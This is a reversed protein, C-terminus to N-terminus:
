RKPAEQPPTEGLVVGLDRFLGEAASKSILAGNPFLTSQVVANEETPAWVKVFRETRDNARIVAEFKPAEQPVAEARNLVRLKYLSDVWGQAKEVKTDGDNFETNASSSILTRSKGNASVVVRDIKDRTVNFLNREVMSAAGSKLPTLSTAPVLFVEGSPARVFFNGAGYTSSGVDLKTVNSGYKITLTNKPADLGLDKSRKEDPHGLSRAARFPALTALVEEGRKSLPFDATVRKEDPNKMNTTTITSLGGNRKIVVNFTEDAWEIEGLREVSGDVVMVSPDKESRVPKTWAAFALATAAIALVGHGVLSKDM